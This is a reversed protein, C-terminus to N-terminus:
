RATQSCTHVEDSGSKARVELCVDFTKIHQVRTDRECVQIKYNKIVLAKAKADLLQAFFDPWEVQHVDRATALLQTM